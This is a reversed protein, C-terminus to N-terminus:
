LMRRGYAIACSRSRQGHWGIAAFHTQDAAAPGVRRVIRWSADAATAVGHGVHCERALGKENTAKKNPPHLAAPARVPPLTPAALRAASDEGRGGPSAARFPRTLSATSNHGKQSQWRGLRPLPAVAHM